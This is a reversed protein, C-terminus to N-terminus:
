TEHKLAIIGYTFLGLGVWCLAFLGLVELAEHM